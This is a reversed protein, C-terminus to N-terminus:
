CTTGGSAVVLTSIVDVIVIVLVALVPARVAMQWDEDQRMSNFVQILAIALYIIFMARIINITIQVPNVTAGSSSFVTNLLGCAKDLFVADAPMVFFYGISLLAITGILLVQTAHPIRDLAKLLRKTDKWYFAGIMIPISGLVFQYEQTWLGLAAFGSGFLMTSARTNIANLFPIPALKRRTRQITM